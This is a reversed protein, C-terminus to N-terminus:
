YRIKKRSVCSVPSLPSLPSMYFKGIDAVRTKLQEIRENMKDEAAYLGGLNRTADSPIPNAALWSGNCYDFFSDGPKM